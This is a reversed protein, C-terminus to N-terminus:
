NQFSDVVLCRFHDLDSHQLGVAHQRLDRDVCSLVQAHSDCVCQLAALGRLGILDTSCVKGKGRHPICPELRWVPWWRVWQSMGPSHLVLHSPSFYGVLLHQITEYPEEDFHLWADWCINSQKKYKFSRNRRLQFVSNRDNAEFFFLM